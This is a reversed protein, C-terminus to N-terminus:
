KKKEVEEKRDPFHKALIPWLRALTETSILDRRTMIAGGGGLSKQADPLEGDYSAIKPIALAVVRQANAVNAMATQVVQEVTVHPADSWSDVDTSMALVAFSMEAERALRAETMQTMGIVHAQFVNKHLLSEAKTSFQPGEMNVYTGKSHCKVEIEACSEILANRIVDCFPFGFGVHAVIGNNYYTSPRAFTKDILQDIIVFDGPAIEERLSGVASISIIFEVGISKLAWINAKYNVERPNYIHGIGHRAIFAVRTDNLKGITIPSSTAGFPTTVNLENEVEFGSFAYFGSGGICAIRCTSSM